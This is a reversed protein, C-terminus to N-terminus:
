LRLQAGHTVGCNVAVAAVAAAAAGAFAVVLIADDDRVVKAQLPPKAAVCFLGGGRMIVSM